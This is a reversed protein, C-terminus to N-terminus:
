NGQIITVTKRPVIRVTHHRVRVRRSNLIAVEAAAGLGIESRVMVPAGHYHHEVIRVNPGFFLGASAPPVWLVFMALFTFVFKM